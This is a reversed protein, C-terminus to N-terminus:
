CWGIQAGRCTVPHLLTMRPIDAQLTLGLEIRVERLSVGNTLGLYVHKSVLPEAPTQSVGSSCLCKYEM